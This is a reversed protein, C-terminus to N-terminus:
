LVRFYIARPSKDIVGPPTWKRNAEYERMIYFEISLFPCRSLVHGVHTYLLFISIKTQFFFFLFLFVFYNTEYNFQNGDCKERISIFYIKKLFLKKM